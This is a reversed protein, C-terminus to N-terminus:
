LLSTRGDTFSWVDWINSACVLIQNYHNGQSRYKWCGRIWQSSSIIQGSQTLIWVSSNKVELHILLTPSHTFRILAEFQSASDCWLSCRSVYFYYAEIDKPQYEFSRDLKQLPIFVANATLLRWECIVLSLSVNEKMADNRVKQWFEPKWIDSCNCYYEFGNKKRWHSSIAFVYSTDFNKKSTFLSQM